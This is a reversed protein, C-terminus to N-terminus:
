NYVRTNKSKKKVNRNMQSLIYWCFCAPAAALNKIEEKMARYRIIAQIFSQSLKKQVRKSGLINRDYQHM